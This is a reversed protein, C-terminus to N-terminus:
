GKIFNDFDPVFIKLHCCDWGAVFECCGPLGFFLVMPFLTVAALNPNIIVLPVLMLSWIVIVHSKATSHNKAVVYVGLTIIMMSGLEFFPTM